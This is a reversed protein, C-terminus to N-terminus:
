KITMDWAIAGTYRLGYADDTNIHDHLHAAMDTMGAESIAEYAKDLRKKINAQAKKDNPDSFNREKLNLYPELQTMQEKINEQEEMSADPLKDKLEQYKELAIKRTKGSGTSQKRIGVHMDQDMAADDSITVNSVKGSANAYLESCSISNGPARLPDLLYRIYLLGDVHKIRAHRGKFGIHWLGGKEKIFFNELATSAPLHNMTGTSDIAKKSIDELSRGETKSSDSYREEHEQLNELELIDEMKYRANLLIEIVAEKEEDRKPLKYNTWSCKEQLKDIKAKLREYRIRIKATTGDSYRINKLQGNSDKAGEIYLNHWENYNYGSNRIKPFESEIVSVNKMLVAIERPLSESDPPLIPKWYKGYPQLGQIVLRFIDEDFNNWRKILHNGTLSDQLM